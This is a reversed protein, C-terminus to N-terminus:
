GQLNVHLLECLLGVQLVVDVQGLVQQRVGLVPLTAVLPHSAHAAALNITVVGVTRSGLCEELSLVLSGMDRLYRILFKPGCCVPFTAGAGRTPHLQVVTGDGPEGWWKIRLQATRPAGKPSLWAVSNISVVVEGNIEGEVLPPLSTSSIKVHTPLQQQQQQQPPLPPLQQQRQQGNQSKDGQQEQQQRVGHRRLGQKHDYPKPLRRM